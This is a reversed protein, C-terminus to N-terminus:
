RYGKEKMVSVITDKNAVEFKNFVSDDFNEPSVTGSYWTKSNFYDSLYPTTFIRGHRAYIENLALTMTKEDMSSVESKSIYRSESGELIYGGTKETSSSPTKSSAPDTEKETEKQPEPGQSVVISVTDGSELTEGESPNVEIITNAEYYDSYAYYDISASLGVYALEDMAKSYDMGVIYPVTVSKPAETPKETTAPVTTAPQTEVKATTPESTSETTATDPTASSKGGFMDSSIAYFIVGGLLCLVLIIAVVILATKGKGKKRHETDDFDSEDDDFNDFDDTENNDFNNTTENDTKPIEFAKTAQQEIDVTSDAPQLDKEDAFADIDDNTLVNDDPLEEAMSNNGESLSDAASVAAVAAANSPVSGGNKPNYSLLANKFSSANMWRAEPSFQCAILIIKALEKDAQCPAPFPVGKIRKLIAESKEEASSNENLFPERNENFLKYLLLGLSYIDATNKQSKNEQLEPAMFAVTQKVAKKNVINDTKKSIGFDALLYNGKNDRFINEPKIDGHFIGRAELDNLASCIDVALKKKEDFDLEGNKLIDALSEYYPMRIFIDYGSKDEKEYVTHEEYILLNKSRVFSYNTEIEDLITNLAKEAPSLEEDNEASEVSTEQVKGGEFVEEIEDTNDPNSISIHKVAGFVTKGNEDCKIKYVTGYLGSGIESVIEWKDWLPSYSNIDFM